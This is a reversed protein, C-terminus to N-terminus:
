GESTANSANGQDLLPTLRFAPRYVDPHDRDFSKILSYRRQLYRVLPAYRADSQLELLSVYVAVENREDLYARARVNVEGILWFYDLFNYYFELTRPTTGPEVFMYDLGHVIRNPSGAEQDEPDPFDFQIESM